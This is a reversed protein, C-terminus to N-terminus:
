EIQYINKPENNVTEMVSRERIAIKDSMTMLSKKINKRM